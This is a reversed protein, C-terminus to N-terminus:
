QNWHQNHCPWSEFLLQQTQILYPRGQKELYSKHTAQWSMYIAKLSVNAGDPGPIKRYLNIYLHRLQPMQLQLRSNTEFHNDSGLGM